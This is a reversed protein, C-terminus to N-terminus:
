TSSKNLSSARGWWISEASPPFMLHWTHSECFYNCAGRIQVLYAAPAVCRSPGNVNAVHTCRMRERGVPLMIERNYNDIMTM